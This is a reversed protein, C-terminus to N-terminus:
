RAGRSEATGQRRVQKLASWKVVQHMEPSGLGLAEARAQLRSPATLKLWALRTAQFQDEQVRLEKEQRVYAYTEKVTLTRVWIVAGSTLILGALLLCTEKRIFSVTM